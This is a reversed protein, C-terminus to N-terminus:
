ESKYNELYLWFQVAIPEFAAPANKEPWVFQHVIKKYNNKTRVSILILRSPGLRLLEATRESHIQERDLVFVLL